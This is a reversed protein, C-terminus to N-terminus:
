GILDRILHLYNSDSEVIEIGMGNKLSKVPAGIVRGLSTKSARRVSGKIKCVNDDPLHIVIDILTDPTYPYNTRIFLGNISFNSSVGKRKVGDVSFDTNLRKIFRKQERDDAM